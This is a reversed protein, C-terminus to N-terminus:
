KLEEVRETILWDDMTNKFNDRAFVFPEITEFSNIEIVMLYRKGSWRKIQAASLKLKEAHKELWVPSEEKSMKDSEHVAAVRGKAKVLLDGSNEIFYLEDGTNVRGYPVKRGAAGRVVATKEGALIKEYEGASKKFLALKRTPIGYKM